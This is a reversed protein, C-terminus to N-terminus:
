RLWLVRVATVLAYGILLNAMGALIVAGLVRGLARARASQLIVRLTMVNFYALLAAIVVPMLAFAGAAGLKLIRPPSLGVIRWLLAPVLLVVIVAAGRVVVLRLGKAIGVEEIATTV